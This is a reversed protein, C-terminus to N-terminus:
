LAGVPGVFSALMMDSIGSKKLCGTHALVKNQHLKVLYVSKQSGTSPQGWAGRRCGGAARGRGPGGGGRCRGGRGPTGGEGEEDEEENWM